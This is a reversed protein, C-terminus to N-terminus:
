AENLQEMLGDIFGPSAYKLTIARITSIEDESYEMEGDSKYIKLALAHAAIGNLNNYILNAISERADGTQYETRGVNMPIRFSQFNLKRM